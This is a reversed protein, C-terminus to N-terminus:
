LVPQMAVAVVRVRALFLLLLETMRCPEAHALDGVPHDVYTNEQRELKSLQSQRIKRPVDVCEQGLEVSVVPDLSLREM